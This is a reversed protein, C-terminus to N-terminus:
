AWFDVEGKSGFTIKKESVPKVAVEREKLEKKLFPNGRKKEDPTHASPHDGLAVSFESVQVGHGGLVQRLIHLDSEILEKTVHNAAIFHIKLTGDEMGVKIKLEGLIEPKLQITVEHKGEKLQVEIKKTIQDIVGHKDIKVSSPEIKVEKSMSVDADAKLDQHLSIFNPKEEKIDEKATVEKVTKEERDESKMVQEMVEHVFQLANNLSKRAGEAQALAIPVKAQGSHNDVSKGHPAIEKFLEVKRLNEGEHNKFDLKEELRNLFSSFDKRIKGKEKTNVDIEEELGELLVKGQSFHGSFDSRPNSKLRETSGETEKESLLARVQFILEKLTDIKLPDKGDAQVAKETLNQTNGSLVRMMVCLAMEVDEPSREVGEKALIEQIKEWGKKVEEVDKDAKTSLVKLAELLMGKQKIGVEIGSTENAGIDSLPVNAYSLVQGSSSSFNIKAGDGSTDTQSIESHEQSQLIQSSLLQIFLQLLPGFGGKPHAMLDKQKLNLLPKEGMEKLNALWVGKMM